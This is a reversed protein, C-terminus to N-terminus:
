ALKFGTEKLYERVSELHDGQIELNTDVMTGGAGCRDKLAKLLQQRQQKSGALGAIVTMLKGRKRKEVRVKLRQKEPEMELTKLEPEIPQCACQRVDGGCQECIVPRELPTGDFLGM